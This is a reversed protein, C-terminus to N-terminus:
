LNDKNFLTIKIKNHNVIVFATEDDVDFGCFKLLKVIEEGTKGCELGAVIIKDENTTYLTFSCPFVDQKIEARVFRLKCANKINKKFRKVIGFGDNYINAHFMITTAM